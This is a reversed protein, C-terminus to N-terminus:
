WPWTSSARLPARARTSTSTSRPWARGGPCRYGAVGRGPLHHRAPRVLHRRPAHRGDPERTLFDFSLLPAAQVVLYGVILVLPVVMALAMAGFVWKAILENRQKKHVLNTATFM